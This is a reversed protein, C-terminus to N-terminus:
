ATAEVGLEFGTRFQMLQLNRQVYNAFQYRETQEGSCALVKYENLTALKDENHKLTFISRNVATDAVLIVWDQGALAFCTDM